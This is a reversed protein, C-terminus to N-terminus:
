ETPASPPDVPAPANDIAAQEAQLEAQAIAERAAPSDVTTGTTEGQGYAEMERAAAYDSDSM